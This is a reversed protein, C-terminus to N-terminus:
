RVLFKYVKDTAANITAIQTEDTAAAIHPTGVFQPHSWLREYTKKTPPEEVHCDFGAGWILGEELGRALDDEDVIGGRATNLLVASRKMKQLQPYSILGKTSPTLPVHITVVDSRQLLQDLVDVRTHPIHDWPGSGGPHYPDYTVIPCGLGGYFMRAVAQGINGMGIVGITKGSLLLGNVTEKRIVEGEVRQRLCLQPVQRAVSFGLCMTMEAVAGANVGPTNFVEVGHKKCADVDVKDLGVGQKGVVKLQPAAILDKETIYYDKILIATADSRWHAGRPDEFLVCDFLSQAYKVADPHFDSLIYLRPKASSPNSVEVETNSLFPAM